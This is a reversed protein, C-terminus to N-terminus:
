SSSPQMDKPHCAKTSFKPHHQAVERCLDLFEDHSLSQKALNAEACATVCNEVTYGKTSDLRDIGNFVYVGGERPPRNRAERWLVGFCRHEKRPLRGTYYCPSSTLTKFQEKTLTWEIGRKSAGNKYRQMLSRLGADPVATHDVRLCGCSTTHGSLLHTQSVITINGCDCQCKWMRHTQRAKKEAEELVVLRIFRRGVLNVREAM